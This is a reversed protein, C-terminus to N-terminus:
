RQESEQSLGRISDITLWIPARKTREGDYKTLISM